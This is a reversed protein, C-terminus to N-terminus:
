VTVPSVAVEKLQSRIEPPLTNDRYMRTLQWQFAEYDSHGIIQVGDYFLEIFCGCSPDYNMGVEVGGELRVTRTGSGFCSMCPQHSIHVERGSQGEIELKGNVCIIISNDWRYSNDCEVEYGESEIMLMLKATM